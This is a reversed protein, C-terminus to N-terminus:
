NTLESLDFDSVDDLEKQVNGSNEKPIEVKEIKDELISSAVSTTSGGAKKSDKELDFLVKKKSLSGASPFSKLVGKQPDKGIDDLSDETSSRMHSLSKIEAVVTSYKSLVDTGKNAILQHPESETDTEYLSRNKIELPKRKTTGFSEKNANTQKRGSKIRYSVKVINQM